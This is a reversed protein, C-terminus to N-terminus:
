EIMVPPARFYLGGDTKQGTRGKDLIGSQPQPEPHGGL